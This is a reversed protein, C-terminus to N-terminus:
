LRARGRALELHRVVRVVADLQAPAGVSLLASDDVQWRRAGASCRAFIALVPRTGRAAGAAAHLLTPRPAEAPFRGM